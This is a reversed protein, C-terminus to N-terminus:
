IFLESNNPSETKFFKSEAIEDVMKKIVDLQNSKGDNNKAAKWCDPDAGENPDNLQPFILIINNSGAYELLGTRRM